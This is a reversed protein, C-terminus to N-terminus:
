INLGKCFLLLGPLGGVSSVQLYYGSQNELLFARCGARRRGPTMILWDIVVQCKLLIYINDVPHLMILVLGWLYVGFVGIEM